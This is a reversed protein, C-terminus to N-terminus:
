NVSKILRLVSLWIIYNKMYRKYNYKNQTKKRIVINILKGAAAIEAHVSSHIQGLTSTRDGQNMSSSVVKSGKTIIAGHKYKMVSSLAQEYALEAFKTKRCM